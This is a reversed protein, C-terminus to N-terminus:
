KLEPIRKTIEAWGDGTAAQILGTMKAFVPPPLAQQWIRVM